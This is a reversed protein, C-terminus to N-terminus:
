HMRANNCVYSRELPLCVYMCTICVYINYIMGYNQNFSGTQKFAQHTANCLKSVLVFCGGARAPFLSSVVSLRCGCASM